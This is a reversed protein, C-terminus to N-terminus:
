SGIVSTYDATEALDDLILTDTGKQGAEAWCKGTVENLSGEFKATILKELLLRDINKTGFLCALVACGDVRNAGGRRLEECRNGKARELSGTDTKDRRRVEGTTQNTPKALNEPGLANPSKVGPKARDEELLIDSRSM